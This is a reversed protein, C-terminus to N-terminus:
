RSGRSPAGPTRHKEHSRDEHGGEEDAAVLRRVSGAHRELLDEVDTVRGFRDPGGVSGFDDEDPVQVLLHVEVRYLGPGPLRRPLQGTPPIGVLLDRTKEPAHVAIDEVEHAIAPEVLHIRIERSGESRHERFFRTSFGAKSWGRVAAPHGKGPTAIEVDPVKGVAGLHLQGAGAVTRLAPSGPRRVRTENGVRNRGALGQVLGM